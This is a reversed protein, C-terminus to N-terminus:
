AGSSPRQRSPTYQPRNAPDTRSTGRSPAARQPGGSSAAASAPGCTLPAGTFCATIIVTCICFFARRARNVILSVKNLLPRPAPTAVAPSLRGQTYARLELATPDWASFIGEGWRAVTLRSFCSISRNFCDSIAPLFPPPLFFLPPPPDTSAKGCSVMRKPRVM